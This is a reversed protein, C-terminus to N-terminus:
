SSTGQAAGWFFSPLESVLLFDPLHRVRLRVYGGRHELKFSLM